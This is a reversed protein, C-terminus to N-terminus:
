FSRYEDDLAETMEQYPDANLDSVPLFEKVRVFRNMDNRFSNMALNLWRHFIPEYFQDEKVMLAFRVALSMEGVEEGTITMTEPQEIVIEETLEYDEDKLKLVEEMIDKGCREDFYEFLVYVYQKIM